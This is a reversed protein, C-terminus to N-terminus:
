NLVEYSDYLGGGGEFGGQSHGAFFEPALAIRVLFNHDAGLTVKGHLDYHDPCQDGQGKYEDEKIKPHQVHVEPVSHYRKDHHGTMANRKVVTAALAMAMTPVLGTLPMVSMVRIRAETMMTAAPSLPVAPIVAASSM